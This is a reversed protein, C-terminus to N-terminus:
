YRQTYWWTLLVATSYVAVHVAALLAITRARRRTLILASGYVLPQLLLVSLIFPATTDPTDHGGLFRFAFGLLSLYPFLFRILGTLGCALCSFFLIVPFALLWFGMQIFRDFTLMPQLVVAKANVM